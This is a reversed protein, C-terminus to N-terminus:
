GTPPAAGPVPPSEVVTVTEDYYLWGRTGDPWLVEFEDTPDELYDNLSVVIGVIGEWTILSGIGPAM